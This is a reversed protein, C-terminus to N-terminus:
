AHTGEFGERATANIHDATMDFSVNLQPEKSDSSFRRKSNINEQSKLVNAKPRTSNPKTIIPQTVETAQKLAWLRKCPVKNITRQVQFNVISVVSGKRSSKGEWVKVFFVPYGNMHDATGNPHLSDYEQQM